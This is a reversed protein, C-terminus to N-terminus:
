HYLAFTAGTGDVSGGDNTIASAAAIEPPLSTGPAPPGEGDTPLAAPAAM